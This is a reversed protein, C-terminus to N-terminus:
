LARISRELVHRIQHADLLKIGHAFVVGIHIHIILPTTLPLVTEQRIGDVIENGEHKFGSRPGVPDRGNGVIGLGGVEQKYLITPHTHFQHGLDETHVTMLDHIHLYLIDRPQVTQIVQGHLECLQGLCETLRSYYRPVRMEKVRGIVHVIQAGRGIDRLIVDRLHALKLLFLKYRPVLGGHFIFNEVLPSSQFAVALRVHRHQSLRKPRKASVEYILFTSINRSLM